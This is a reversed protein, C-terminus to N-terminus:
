PGAVKGRLVRGALVAAVDQVTSEQAPEPQSEQALALWGTGAAYHADWTCVATEVVKQQAADVFTVVLVPHGKVSCSSANLVASVAAPDHGLAPSITAVASRAVDRADSCGPVRMMLAAADRHYSGHAAARVLPQASSSPLALAATHTVRAAGCGSLAAAVATLALTWRKARSWSRIM